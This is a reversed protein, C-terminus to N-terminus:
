DRHYYSSITRNYEGQRGDGQIIELRGPGTGLEIGDARLNKKSQEVLGEIHEIGIVTAQPALHHFVATVIVM